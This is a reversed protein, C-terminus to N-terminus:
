LHITLLQECKNDRFWNQVEETYDSIRATGSRARSLFDKVGNPCPRTDLDKLAACFASSDSVFQRITAITAAGLRFAELRARIEIAQKAPIDFGPVTSFLLLDNTSRKQLVDERRKAVAISLAESNSSIWLALSRRLGDWRTQDLSSGVYEVLARKPASQDALSWAGVVGCCSELQLAAQSATLRDMEGVWSLCDQTRSALARARQSRENANQAKRAMDTLGEVQKLISM